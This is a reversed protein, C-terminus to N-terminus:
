GKIINLFQNYKEEKTLLNWKNHTVSQISVKSNEKSAISEIKKAKCNPCLPPSIDFNSGGVDTDCTLQGYIAQVLESEDVPKVRGEKEAQHVFDIIEQYPPDDFANLYRCEGSTSWLLFEGYSFDSLAPAIFHTKCVQCVHEFSSIMMKM